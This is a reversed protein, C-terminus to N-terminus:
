IFMCVLMYTHTHPIHIYSHECTYALTRMRSCVNPLWLRDRTVLGQREEKDSVLWAQTLSLKQWNEERGGMPKSPNCVGTSGHRAKIHTRSIRVCRLLGTCCVNWRSLWRGLGLHVSNLHNAHRHTSNFLFRIWLKSYFFFFLCSCFSPVSALHFLSRLTFGSVRLRISSFTPFPPSHVPLMSCKRFLVGSAHAGLDVNVTSVEYSQSAFSVMIWVLCCGVSHSLIKALEM